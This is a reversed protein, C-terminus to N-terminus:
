DWCPQLKPRGDKARELSWCPGVTRKGPLQQPKTLTPAEPSSTPSAPLAHDEPDEPSVGSEAKDRPPPCASVKQLLTERERPFFCGSFWCLCYWLHAHGATAGGRISSPRAQADTQPFSGAGTMTVRLKLPDLNLDLLQMQM